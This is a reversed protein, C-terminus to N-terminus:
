RMLKTRSEKALETLHRKLYKGSKKSTNELDEKSNKRFLFQFPFQVRYYDWHVYDLFRHVFHNPHVRDLDGILVARMVFAIMRKKSNDSWSEVM